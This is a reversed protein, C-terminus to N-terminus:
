GIRRIGRGPGSCSCRRPRHAGGVADPTSDDQGAVVGLLEFGDVGAQGGLELLAAVGFEAVDGDSGEGIEVVLVGGFLGREKRVGPGDGAGGLGGWALSGVIFVVAGAPRVRTQAADGILNRNWDGM